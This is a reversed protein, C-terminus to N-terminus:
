LSEVNDNTIRVTVAEGTRGLPPGPAGNISYAVAGADGVRLTIATRADVLAREGPQMLRYIVREGDAVATVWCPGKTRIELRLSPAPLGAGAAAAFAVQTTENSDDTATSDPPPQGVADLIEPGEAAQYPAPSRELVLSGCILVGIIAVLVAPLRQRLGLRNKWDAEHRHFPLAPPETEFRARYERALEDANLGVEAAFARVYARRFVGAPLRAFDNHEIAALATMSIKTTTAIDRLTLGRKERAQRLRSGIDTAAQDMDVERSSTM